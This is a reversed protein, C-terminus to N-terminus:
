QPVGMREVITGLQEPSLGFFDFVLGLRFLYSRNGSVVDVLYDVIDVVAFEDHFHDEHFSPGALKAFNILLLVVRGRDSHLWGIQDLDAVFGDKGGGVRDTSVACRVFFMVPSKILISLDVQIHPILDESDQLRKQRLAKANHLAASKVDPSERVGHWDPLLGVTVTTWGAPRDFYFESYLVMM